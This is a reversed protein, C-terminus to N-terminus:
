RLRESLHTVADRTLILKDRRLIDYVNAGSSPLIDLGVINRTAMTFNADPEPGDIVLADGWKLRKLSKVLEVTKPSKSKTDELVVLKGEAHKM